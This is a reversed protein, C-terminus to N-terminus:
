DVSASLHTVGSVPDGFTAIDSPGNPVTNPMWNAATNWDGSLSKHELNRQRRPIAAARSSIAGCRCHCLNIGFTEHM